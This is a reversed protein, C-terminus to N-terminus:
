RRRRYHAVLAVGSALTVLGFGVSIFVNLGLVSATGNAVLALVLVTWLLAPLAVSRDNQQTSTMTNEESLRTTNTMGSVSHAAPKRSSGALVVALLVAPQVALGFPPAKDNRASSTGHGM